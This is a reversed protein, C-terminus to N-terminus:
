PSGPEIFATKAGAGSIWARVATAVFEPGSDSHRHGQMGRLVFLDAPVDIADASRLRCGARIALCKRGFADVMHLMWLKGDDRTRNEVFDYAWVHNVREARLRVCSSDDLWLRGRQAIAGAGKAGPGALDAGGM